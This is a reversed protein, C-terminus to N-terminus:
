VREGAGRDVIRIGLTDPPIRAGKGITVRGRWPPEATPASDIGIVMYWAGDWHRRRAPLELVEGTDVDVAILDSNM